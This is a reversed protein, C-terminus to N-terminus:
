GGATNPFTATRRRIRSCISLSPMITLDYDYPDLAAFFAQKCSEGHLEIAINRVRDLWDCPGSFVALEAGEIDIKLLDVQSGASELMDLLGAMSMAELDPMGGAPTEVVRIGWENGSASQRQITLGTPHSWVASRVMTVRDAFPALNRACVAYNAPDPEVAIARLRPYRNLFYLSVYGVNAGCDLLMAPAHDHPLADTVGRYEASVFIADFVEMDSTNHRLYVPHAYGKLHLPHGGDTGPLGLRHRMRLYKFGLAGRLGVESILRANYQLRRVLQM